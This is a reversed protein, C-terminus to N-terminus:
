SARRHAERWVALYEAYIARDEAPSFGGGEVQGTM